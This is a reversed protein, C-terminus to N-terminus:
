ANCGGGGKMEKVQLEKAGTRENEEAMLKKEYV